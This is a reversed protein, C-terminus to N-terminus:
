SSQCASLRPLQKKTPPDNKLYTETGSVVGIQFSKIFKIETQKGFILETSGGGIDIVVTTGSESYGYVAGLYSLRAEEKAPVINVVWGFLEYIKAAIQDRNIAIRMANTATILIRECHYLEIIKKYESLIIILDNIKDESIQGNPLLGKGIRPIRYKDLLSKIQLNKTVEAILLLVTNTGIDISAITM